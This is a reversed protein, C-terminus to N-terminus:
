LPHTPLFCSAGGVESERQAGILRMGMGTELRCGGKVDFILDYKM